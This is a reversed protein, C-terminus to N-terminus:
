LGENLQENTIEFTVSSRLVGTDILPNSSGKREVTSPANPPSKLQTMYVQVNGVALVGLQNLIEDPTMGAELGNAITTVYEKNGSAVGVDLWPRAPINGDMTGFHLVAGLQANTIGADPHAGASEHIGVTVRKNTMVKDLEKHIQQKIKNMNPTKVRLM